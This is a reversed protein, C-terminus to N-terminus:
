SMSYSAASRVIQGQGNLYVNAGVATDNGLAIATAQGADASVLNLQPMTSGKALPSIEITGGPLATLQWRDDHTIAPYLSKWRDIAAKIDVCTMGGDINAAIEDPIEVFGFKNPQM